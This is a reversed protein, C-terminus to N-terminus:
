YEQEINKESLLWDIEDVKQLIEDTVATIYKPLLSDFIEQGSDIKLESRNSYNYYEKVRLTDKGFSIGTIREAALLNDTAIKLDKLLRQKAKEEIRKQFTTQEM